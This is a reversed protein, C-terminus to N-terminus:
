RVPRVRSRIYRPPPPMWPCGFPGAAPTRAMRRAHSAAASPSVKCSAALPWGSRAAESAFHPQGRLAAARGFRPHPPKGHRNARPRCRGASLHHGAPPALTGDAMAAFLRQAAAEYEARDATYHAISPRTVFLSGRAGLSAVPLPPVAGSSEGFSLLTGRPALSDLSAAITDAGVSDYAVQVGTGGTIQKVCDAIDETGSVIVHDCGNRHAANAKAPSGVTGIVTAGIAKLWRCAISGVGRRRM